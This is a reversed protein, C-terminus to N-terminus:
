RFLGHFNRDNICKITCIKTIYRINVLLSASTTSMVCQLTGYNYVLCTQIILRRRLLYSISLTKQKISRKRLRSVYYYSSMHLIEFHSDPIFLRVQIINQLHKTM